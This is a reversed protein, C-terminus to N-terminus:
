GAGARRLGRGVEVLMSEGDMFAVKALGLVAEGVARVVADVDVGKAAIKHRLAL